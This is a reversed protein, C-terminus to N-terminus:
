GAGNLINPLKHTSTTTPLKTQEKTSVATPLCNPQDGLQRGAKQPHNPRRAHSAQNHPQNSRRGSARCEPNCNHSAKCRVGLKAVSVLIFVPPPKCKQSGVNDHRVTGSPRPLTLTRARVCTRTVRASGRPPMTCRLVSASAM